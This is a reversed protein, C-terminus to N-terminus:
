NAIILRETYRMDGAIISVMYVGNALDGNLDIVTYLHEGQTPIERAMVRKGTLDHIDLAVTLVDEAIGGMNIWFQDGNNPNPWLSIDGEGALALNQNGGQAPPNQITLLCIDGWASDPDLPDVCWAGNRFARVDVEYTKGAELPAAVAAGWNLNLFYGTSSRIIEINEAPIRFRWQYETAQAVPRSHIRQGPVGFQRFQGCSLFQNGPIDMLKTPPCQALAEDRVFRCAAGWDGNVGQIRPRIRVNMLDFEPIHNAVPWNNVKMHCARVASAPGFGDSQRHNRFRRFSYGGNPNYFWFEYGSTTSQATNPAGEIWEASVDDDPTAVLYEGTRWWYKDCSTYIPEVDGIPMCFSYSNGTIQSVSGFGGNGQNDIIRRNGAATRLQYGGTVGNVMGDGASDFVSLTYCGEPMCCTTPIAISFGDFYPGGSCVQVGNDANVIEWTTQSGQLDTIVEFTTVQDGVALTAPTRFAECNGDSYTAYFTYFGGTAPNVANAAIPDFVSGTGVLNGGTAADYWQITPQLEYLVTVTWTNNPILNYTTNCGSGSPWTRYAQMQFTLNGTASVGNAIALGNRTYTLTGGTNGCTGATVGSGVSNCFYFGGSPGIETLGTQTCGIRSVQENTWAGGTATMQYTVNVGLVNSGPPINVTLPTAPGNCTASYSDSNTPIAGASYTASAQGIIPSGTATLGQGGPISGGVCIAYNTTTAPAPRPLVSVTTSVVRPCPNSASTVTVTYNGAAALTAPITPNQVNSTFGNPGVWSFITGQVTTTTLEIPDGVCVPGNNSATAAVGLCVFNLRIYNLAGVDGGASDCIRVRWNGNAAGSNFGSLPQEPAYTGTVNNVAPLGSVPPAGDQLTLLANPCLAPNGFNDASGGRNTVLPIETGAPSVLSIRLDGNWTHTVVLDVSQLAVDTGLTTGPAGSIAFEGVAFFNQLCGNDPIALNQGCTAHQIITPGAEQLCVTFTGPSGLNGNTFVRLLYNTNPQFGIIPLSPQDSCFLSNGTCLDWIEWGLHTATVPTVNVSIPPISLGTNLSYWVDRIPGVAGACTPNALELGADFTSGTTANGPCGGFNQITLPTANACLDNAPVCFTTRTFNGRFSNCLNNNEHLLTVAVTSTVPFPGLVYVDEQLGTLDVPTGGNVVYRIGAESAYVYDQDNVDFVEGLYYLDVEIEFTLNNCDTPQVFVDGLPPFCEPTCFVRMNWPGAGAGGDACSGSGDSDVEISFVSGPSTYVGLNSLDGGVGPVSIQNVGPPGDYFIVGDGLAIPAPPQWEVSVLGGDPNVFHFTREDNNRYCHYLIIEQGCILTIPCTSFGVGDASGCAPVVNSFSAEVYDTSAFPGLVVVGLANIAQDTVAGGNVTYSLTGTSGFGFDTVNVELNFQDNACDDVRTYTATPAICDIVSICYDQTTGSGMFALCGDGAGNPNGQGRSRIRMRTEGTLATLPVDINVTGTVAATYVQTWEDSTFNNDQNWDFWVSVIAGGYINADVSVTLPYTAGRALFTTASQLSYGVCTPTSNNLTNLEVQTICAGDAANTVACYTGCFCAGGMTVQVPTSEGVGGGPETCNVVCRYWTDVAQTTTQFPSNSGFNTWPGTSSPGSQWQYTVGSGSTPNQLSLGVNSAPCTISSSALTNGPSPTSACPPPVNITICYDETEGWTYTGTPLISGPAVGEVNVVRLRTTGPVASAPVLFTGSETYGAGNITSEYVREGPGNFDGNGDWDVFIVFASNFLGGCTGITVSFNVTEGQDVVPAAVSTTYNAYQNLISGPGPAPTVCNSTNNLTSVTVNEIRTDAASTANSAGYAGCQCAGGLTVQVPNSNGSQGSNTCTVVCRYWTDATLSTVQTNTGGGFNTWPGTSSPGSQWQYTVGSGMTGNQLSLTFNASPCASLNSSLTNGPSPTGACPTPQSINISFDQVSGYFFSACPDLPAVGGEILMVRMRTTGTIASPPVNFALNAILSQGFLTSATGLSESPDFFGNQNYDIWAEAVKGYNTASCSNLDLTLTYGSGSVLDASLATLDQVGLIGPCTYNYNISGPAGNLVVSLIQTDFTTTPGVGATCYCDFFTNLNVQVPTSTGSQGSNTCTVICRYWTTATLSTTAISANPGFNTWPGTNSPGSQWQYNVGSGLTLNQLSLNFNVSPCAGSISSLTNGPAPTGTCAAGSVINVLYDETEGWTFTGCPLQGPGGGENLVVRMGTIGLVADTPVNVTSSIIEALSNFGGTLVVEAPDEYIGNQNFDVWMKAWGGYFFGSCSGHQVSAPYSAGATLNPAPVATYNTYAECPAGGPTGVFNSLSGLSVGAIKTDATSTANSPCYQADATPALGLALLALAAGAARSWRTISRTFTRLNM